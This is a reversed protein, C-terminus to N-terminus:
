AGGSHRAREHAAENLLRQRERLMEEKARLVSRLEALPDSQVAPASPEVLGVAIAGAGGVASGLSPPAVYDSMAAVSSSAALSPLSADGALAVTLPGSSLAGELQLQLSLSGKAHRFPDQQAPAAPVAKKKAPRSGSLASASRHHGSRPSPVVDVSTSRAHGGGRRVAKSPPVPALPSQALAKEEGVEVSTSRAHGRIAKAPQAPAPATKRENATGRGRPAAVARAPSMRATVAAQASRAPSTSSAGGRGRRAPSRPSRPAADSRSGGGGAAPKKRAAARQEAEASEAMAAKQRLYGVIQGRQAPSLLGRRDPDFMQMFTDACLGEWDGGAAESFAPELLGLERLRALIGGLKQTVMWERLMERTWVAGAPSSPPTRADTCGATLSWGPHFCSRAAGARGGSSRAHADEAALRDQEPRESDAAAGSAALPEADKPDSSTSDPAEPGHGTLRASLAEM